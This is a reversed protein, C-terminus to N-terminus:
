GSAVVNAGAVVRARAPHVLQVALDTYIGAASASWGDSGSCEWGVSSQYQEKEDILLLLL